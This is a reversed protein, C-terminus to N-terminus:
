VETYTHLHVCVCVCMCRVEVGGSEVLLQCIADDAAIASLCLAAHRRCCLDDDHIVNNDVNATTTHGEPTFIALLLKRVVSFSRFSPRDHVHSCVYM